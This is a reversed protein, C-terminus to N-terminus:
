SQILCVAERLKAHIKGSRSAANRNLEVSQSIYKFHDHVFMFNEITLKKKNLLYGTSLQM